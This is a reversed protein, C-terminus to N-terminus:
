RGCEFSKIRCDNFNNMVIREATRCANHETTLGARVFIIISSQWSIMKAGFTLVKLFSTHKEISKLPFPILDNLAHYYTFTILELVSFTTWSPQLFKVNMELTNPLSM